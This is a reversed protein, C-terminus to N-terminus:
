LGSSGKKGSHGEEGVPTLCHPGTDLGLSSFLNNNVLKCWYKRQRGRRPKVNWEQVFLKRSYRHEPMSAVKYRDRCGQIYHIWGWTVEVFM